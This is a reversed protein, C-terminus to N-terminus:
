PHRARGVKRLAGIAAAIDAEVEEEPYAPMGAQIADVTEFRAARQEMLQRYRGIPLVAAVPTGSSELIVTEGDYRVRGLMESFKRRAERVAM